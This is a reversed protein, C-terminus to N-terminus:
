SKELYDKLLIGVIEKWGAEYSEREFAKGADAFNEIGRHTLTVRTADGVPELEWTLISVGKSHSPHTWTHELKQIPLIEQIVGQHHYKKEEGPEYFNFTAGVKVEFDPIDFYWLKLQSKETLAKWVKGIPANITEEVVIPEISM